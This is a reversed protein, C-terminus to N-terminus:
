SPSSTASFRPVRWPSIRATKILQLGVALDFFEELHDPDFDLLQQIVQIPLWLALERMLDASNRGAFNDFLSDTIPEVIGDRWADFQKKNFTETLLVRLRTHEPPDFQILNIGQVRGITEQYVTSSFIRPNRYAQQLTDYNLFTFVERDGAAAAMSYPLGFEETLVDGRHVPGNARLRDYIEHPNEIDPAVVAKDYEAHIDIGALVERPDASLESATM